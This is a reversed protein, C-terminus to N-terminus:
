LVAIRLRLADRIEVLNGFLSRQNRDAEGFESTSRASVSAVYCDARRVPLISDGDTLHGFSRHLFEFVRQM